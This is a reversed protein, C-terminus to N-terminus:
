LKNSQIFKLNKYVRNKHLKNPVNWHRLSKKYGSSNYVCVYKIIFPEIDKKINSIHTFNEEM